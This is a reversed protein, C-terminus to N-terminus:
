VQKRSLLVPHWEEPMPEVTQGLDVRYGCMPPLKTGEIVRDANNRPFERCLDPRKDYHTCLRTQPDFWDCRYFSSPWPLPALFSPQGNRPHVNVMPQVDREWPALALGERRSIPRLVNLIWWRTYEGLVDNKM